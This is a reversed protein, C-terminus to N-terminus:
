EDRSMIAKLAEAFDGFYRRHTKHLAEESAAELLVAEHDTMGKRHHELELALLADQAKRRDSEDFTQMNVIRTEPRNYEILFIM